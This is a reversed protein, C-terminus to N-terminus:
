NRVVSDTTPGVLPLCAWASAGLYRDEERTSRLGRGRNTERGQGGSENPIPDTQGANRISQSTRTPVGAGCSTKAQRSMGKQKAPLNRLPSAQSKADRRGGGHRDQEEGPAGSGPDDCRNQPTQGFGAVAPPDGLTDCVMSLGEQNQGEPQGGAGTCWMASSLESIPQLDKQLVRPGSGRAAGRHAHVGHTQARYSREQGRGAWQRQLAAAAIQNTSDAAQQTVQCGYPQHVREWQRLSFGPHRFSVAGAHSGASTQPLGRQDAAYGGGGAM